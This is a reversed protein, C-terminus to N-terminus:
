GAAICAAAADGIVPLPLMPLGPAFGDSFYGPWVM